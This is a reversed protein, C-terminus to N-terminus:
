SENPDAKLVYIAGFRRVTYDDLDYRTLGPQYVVTYDAQATEGLPDTNTNLLGHQMELLFDFNMGIRYFPDIEHWAAVWWFNQMEPFIDYRVSLTEDGNWDSAIYDVANDVHRYLAVNYRSYASDDHLHLRAVRQGGNLGAYVLMLGVLCASM